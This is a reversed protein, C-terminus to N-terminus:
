SPDPDRVSVLRRAAPGLSPAVELKKAQLRGEWGLAALGLTLAVTAAGLALAPHQLLWNPHHALAIGWTNNLAHAWIAMGLGGCRWALLGFWLGMLVRPLFGAPELHIAAFLFATVALGLVPGGMDSWAKQLLGRFLLEESWAPLLAIAVLVGVGGWWDSSVLPELGTGKMPQMWHMAVLGQGILYQLSAFLLYCPLSCLAVGIVVWARLAGPPPLAGPAWGKPLGFALWTPLGVALLSISASLWPLNPQEGEPTFGLFAVATVLVMMVGVVVLTAMAHLLRELALPPRM